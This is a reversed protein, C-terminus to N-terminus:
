GVLNIKSTEEVEGKRSSPWNCFVIIWSSKRTIIIQGVFVGVIFGFGYGMAVTLSNESMCLILLTDISLNSIWKPIQGHINNQSLDLVELQDQNRLFKPFDSLNCSGLELSKFKQFTSNT